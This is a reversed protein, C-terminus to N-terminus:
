RVARPTAFLQTTIIRDVFSFSATVVYYALALQLRVHHRHSPTKEAARTPTMTTVPDNKHADLLFLSMGVATAHRPHSPPATGIGIGLSMIHCTAHLRYTYMYMYMNRHIRACSMYSNRCASLLTSRSRGTGTRLVLDLSELSSRRLSIQCATPM